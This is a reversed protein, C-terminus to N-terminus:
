ASRAARRVAVAARTAHTFAVHEPMSRNEPGSIGLSLDKPIRLPPADVLDIEIPDPTPDAMTHVHLVLLTHMLMKNLSIPM